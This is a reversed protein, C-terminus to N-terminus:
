PARAALADTAILREAGVSANAARTDIDHLQLPALSGLGEAVVIADDGHRSSSTPAAPQRVRPRWPQGVAADGQPRQAPADVGRRDVARHVRGAPHDPLARLRRRGVRHRHRDGVPGPLARVPRASALRGQVHRAARRGRRALFAARPAPQQGRRRDPRRPAISSIAMVALISHMDAEDSGDVPFVLAASAAAIGPGISIRPTPRTAASSISAPDPRTRTSRRRPRRGEAPLRRRPARRDPRPRHQELRVRHHPGQARRFGLGSGGQAPFRHGDRRPRRHHHGLM